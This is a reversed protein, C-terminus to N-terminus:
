FFGTEASPIKKIKCCASQSRRGCSKLEDLAEKSVASELDILTYAYGGKSKNTMDAINIGEGGLIKTFQSIMNPINKHTIAIRGVTVCSGM